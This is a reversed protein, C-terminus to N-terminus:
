KAKRSRIKILPRMVYHTERVPVFINSFDIANIGDLIKDNDLYGKDKLYEFVRLVNHMRLNFYLDILIGCGQNLDDNLASREGAQNGANSKDGSSMHHLIVPARDCDEPSILTRIIHKKENCPISSICDMLPFRFNLYDFGEAKMQTKNITDLQKELVDITSRLDSTKRGLLNMKKVMSARVFSDSVDGVEELYRDIKSELDKLEVKKGNIDEILSKKTNNNTIFELFPKDPSSLISAIKSWIFDDVFEMRINSMTCKERPYASRDILCSKSWYCQYYHLARKCVAGSISTAGGMRGGCNGCKILSAVFFKDPYRVAVTKRIRLKLKRQVQNWVSEEIFKPFPYVIWSSRPKLVPYTKHGIKIKIRKSNSGERKYKYKHLVKRGM